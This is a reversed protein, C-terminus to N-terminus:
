IVLDKQHFFHCSVCFLFMFKEFTENKCVERKKCNMILKKIGNIIDRNAIKGTM